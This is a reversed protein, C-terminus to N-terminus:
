PEIPEFPPVVDANQARHRLFSGNACNSVNSGCNLQEFVWAHIM